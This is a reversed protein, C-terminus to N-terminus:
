SNQTNVTNVVRLPQNKGVMCTELNSSPSDAKFMPEFKVLQALNHGSTRLTTAVLFSYSIVSM